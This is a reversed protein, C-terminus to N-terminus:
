RVFFFVGRHHDPPPSRPSTPTVAEYNRSISRHKHFMWRDWAQPKTCIVYSVYSMCTGVRIALNMPGVHPGDPGSLVWTSRMKAGHVKSDTNLILIVSIHAEQWTIITWSFELKPIVSCTKWKRDNRLEQSPVPLQFGEKRFCIIQKDQMTLVITTSSKAICPALNM